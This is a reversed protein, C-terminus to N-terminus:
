AGFLPLWTGTSMVGRGQIQTYPVWFVVEGSHCVGFGYGTALVGHDLEVACVGHDLMM